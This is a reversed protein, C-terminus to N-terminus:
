PLLHPFRQPSCNSGRGACLETDLTWRWRWPLRQQQQWRQPSCVCPKPRLLQARRSLLQRLPSNWGGRQQPVQPLTKQPAHQVPPPWALQLLRACAGWSRRGILPAM